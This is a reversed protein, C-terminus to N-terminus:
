RDQDESDSVGEEAFHESKGRLVEMYYTYIALADAVNHDNTSFGRKHAEGVMDQKLAKGSGTWFKKVETAGVHTMEINWSACVMQVIGYMGFLVRNPHFEMGGNPREVVIKNFNKALPYLWHFFELFSENTFTKTKHIWNKGEYKLIKEDIGTVYGTNSGLDLALIKM